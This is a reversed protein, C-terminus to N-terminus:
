APCLPRNRYCLRRREHGAEAGLEGDAKQQRLLQETVRRLPEDAKAWYFGYLHGVLDDTSSGAAHKLWETALVIQKDIKKGSIWQHTCSFPMFRM